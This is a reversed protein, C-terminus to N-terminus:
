PYYRHLNSSGCPWALTCVFLGRRFLTINMKKFTNAALILNLAVSHFKKCLSVSNFGCAANLRVQHGVETSTRMMVVHFSLWFVIATAM